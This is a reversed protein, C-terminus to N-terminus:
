KDGKASLVEFEGWGMGISDRSFHRGELIGVQLGARLLLNAVDSVTFQDADFRINVAAEWGADWMPRARLDTNGNAVRVAHEVYRPEGKTIKVLPDGSTRDFGDPVVFVSCKAATMKFGCVACARIMAARFASAPIGIWGESAVHKAEEYCAMFDKGDRKRGKKATSGAEQTEHMQQRAKQGFACMVLPSTGRIRFVAQKLNPAAITVKAASEPAAKTKSM